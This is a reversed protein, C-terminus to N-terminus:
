RRKGNHFQVSGSQKAATKRNRIVPCRIEAEEFDDGAEPALSQWQVTAREVRSNGNTPPSQENGTADTSARQSVEVRRTM